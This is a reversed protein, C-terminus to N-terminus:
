AEKLKEAFHEYMRYMPCNSPTIDEIYGIDQLYLMAATIDAHVDKYYVFSKESANLSYNSKTVFFKRVGSNEPVKFDEQMEKILAPFKKCVSEWLQDEAKRSELGRRKDTYKDALYSGAAGTFAGILFGTFLSLPEM